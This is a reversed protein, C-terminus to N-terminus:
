ACFQELQWPLEFFPDDAGEIWAAIALSTPPIAASLASVSACTEAMAEAFYDVGSM